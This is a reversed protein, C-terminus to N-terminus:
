KSSPVRALSSLDSSEVIHARSAGIYGNGWRHNSLSSLKQRVKVGKKEDIVSQLDCDALELVVGVLQGLQVAGYLTIVNKHRIESFVVASQITFKPAIFSTTLPLPIYYLLVIISIIIIINYYYDIIIYYAFFYHM